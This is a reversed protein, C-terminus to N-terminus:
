DSNILDILKRRDTLFVDLDKVEVVDEMSFLTWSLDPILEIQIHATGDKWNLIQDVLNFTNWFSEEPSNGARFLKLNWLSYPKRNALVRKEELHCERIVKDLPVSAISICTIDNSKRKMDANIEFAVTVYASGRKDRLPITHYLFKGRFRLTESVIKVGECNRLICNSLILDESAFIPVQLVCWELIVRSGEATAIQQRDSVFCSAILIRERRDDYEKLCPSLNSTDKVLNLEQGFSKCETFNALYEEMTGLHYFKSENLVIVKFELNRLLPLLQCKYGEFQTADCNKMHLGLCPLFHAYADLESDLSAEMYWSLLPVYAKASMWFVSDSFVMEETTLDNKVVAKKERMLQMSPKQLVELCESVVVSDSKISRDPLVYVGHYTATKLDCPHALAVVDATKLSECDRLDSELCYTEIDDGCTVFIGPQLIQCFPLYMALKLDIM